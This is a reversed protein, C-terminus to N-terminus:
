HVTCFKVQQMVHCHEEEEVIICLRQSNTTWRRREMMMIIAVCASVLQILRNDIRGYQM